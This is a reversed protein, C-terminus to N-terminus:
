FISLITALLMLVTATWMMSLFKAGKTAAIGIVEGHKNIVDVGKEIIVTSLITALTIALFGLQNGHTNSMLEHSFAQLSVTDVALNFMAVVRRDFYLKWVASLVGTGICIISLIHLISLAMGTANLAGEALDIASPWHLDELTVGKPLYQQMIETPNFHFLATHNSCDTLLLTKSANHQYTGTCHGRLYVTFFDPLGLANAVDSTVGNFLDNIGGQIDNTLGDLLGDSGDTTNFLSTQGIRSVNM